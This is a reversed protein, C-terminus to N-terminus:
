GGLVIKRKIRYPDEKSANYKYEPNMDRTIRSM